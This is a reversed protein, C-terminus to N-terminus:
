PFYFIHGHAHATQMDKSPHTTPSPLSGMLNISISWGCM